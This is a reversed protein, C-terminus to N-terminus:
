FEVDEERKRYMEDVGKAALALYIDVRELAGIIM